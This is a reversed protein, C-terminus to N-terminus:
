SGRGSTAYACTPCPLAFVRDKGYGQVKFSHGCSYTDTFERGDVVPVDYEQEREAQTVVARALTVSHTAIKEHDKDQDCSAAINGAIMAILYYRANLPTSM